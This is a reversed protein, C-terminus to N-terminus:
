SVTPGNALLDYLCVCKFFATKKFGDTPNILQDFNECLLNRLLTLDIISAPIYAACYLVGELGFQENMLQLSSAKYRNKYSPVGFDEQTRRAHVGVKKHLKGDKLAQQVNTTDRYGAERLYKFVPVYGNLKPVTDNLVKSAEYQKEEQFLIDRVLEYRGIATYGVAQVKKIAGIGFVVDFKINQDVTSIDQVYLHSKPDNTLVLEYVHEKLQRLLRAPFKRKYNSLAKYLPLFSSLKIKTIPFTKGEQPTLVAESIGEASENWEVFILRDQLEDIGKQDLCTTIEKIINQINADSLSYGMFIIPHEILLTLLKSVLYPNKNDYDQYDKSTLILSNPKTCCGHIKYIEAIGLPQKKNFLIDQQGIYTNFDPFIGDLFTDWNTTIIGDIAIKKFQVVEDDLVANRLLTASREGIYQSIEIKLPTDPSSCLHQFKERNEKYKEEEWWSKTFDNSILSATQILDGSASSKYYMYPKSLKGAFKELLLDWSELGLYRRSIGSGVFLIPATNFTSLIEEIKQQIM